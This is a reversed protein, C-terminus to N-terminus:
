EDYDDTDDEVAAKPRKRDFTRGGEDRKRKEFDRGTKNGGGSSRRKQSAATRANFDPADSASPGTGFPRPSFPRQGYGAGGGGGGPRQGFGGGGGGPRQGYGGAGGGGPRQGYGGGGGGGPRPGRDRAGGFDGRPAFGGPAGGEPRPPRNEALNVRLPRGRLDTGNLM